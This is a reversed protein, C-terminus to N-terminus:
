RAPGSAAAAPASPSRGKASAVLQARLEALRSKLRRENEPGVRVLIKQGAALRQLEPDVFEYRVWPRTSPYPGKVETLRLRPPQAPEPTALLLDIVAVVRDNLYRDGFGLERYSQQLLPYMRRYLAVARAADVSEALLVLPKYRAANDAGIVPGDPLETVTFRGQAPQVPWASVPAAERGLNDITAVLRRAFGDTQLLSAVAKEGVLGALASPVEAARLPQEELEPLPFHIAASPASAAPEVAPAQAEPVAARPVPPPSQAHWWWAASAALIALVAMFALLGFSRREAPGQPREDRGPRIELEQESDSM